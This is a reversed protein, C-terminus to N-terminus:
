GGGCFSKLKRRIHPSFLHHVFDLLTAFLSILDKFNLVM